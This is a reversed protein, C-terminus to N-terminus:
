ESVGESSPEVLGSVPESDERLSDMVAVADAEYTPICVPERGDEYDVVVNGPVDARYSTEYKIKM